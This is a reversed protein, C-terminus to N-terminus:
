TAETMDSETITRRLGKSPLYRILGSSKWVGHGRGSWPGLLPTLLFGTLVSARLGSCHWYGLRHGSMVM